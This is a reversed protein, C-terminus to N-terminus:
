IRLFLDFRLLKSKNFSKTLIRLETLIGQLVTHVTVNYAMHVMAVIEFAPSLIMVISAKMFWADVLISYVLDAVSIGGFAIALLLELILLWSAPTDSLHPPRRASLLCPLGLLLLLALWGLPTWRM